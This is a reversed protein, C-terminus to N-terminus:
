NWFILFVDRFDYVASIILMSKCYCYDSTVMAHELSPIRTTWLKIKLPFISNVNFFLFLLGCLCDLLYAYIWTASSKKELCGARLTVKEIFVFFTKIHKLPSLTYRIERTYGKEHPWPTYCLCVFPCIYSYVRGAARRM